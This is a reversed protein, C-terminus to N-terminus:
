SAWETSSPLEGAGWHKYLKAAARQFYHGKEDQAAAELLSVEGSEKSISLTGVRGDGEFRYVARSDDESLKTIRIYFAMEIERLREVRARDTNLRDAVYTALHDLDEHAKRLFEPDEKLLLPEASQLARGLNRQEALEHLRVPAIVWNVGPEDFRYTLRWALRGPFEAIWESLLEALEPTRDKPRFVIVPIQDRHLGRAQELERIGRLVSFIYNVDELAPELDDGVLAVQATTRGRGDVFEVEYGARPSEFVEIVTGVMGKRLQEQPLDRVLRVVQLLRLTGPM